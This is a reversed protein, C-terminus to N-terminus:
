FRVRAGGLIQTARESTADADTRRGTLYLDLGAADVAQVVGLGYLYPSSILASGVKSEYRGLEGFLTTKGFEFVRREIGAQGHWATLVGDLADKQQAAGVNAFLGSIKHLVAVSGIVTRQLTDDDRYGLGAAFQFEGADHSFRAGLDWVNDNAWSASATFGAILPSDYRVLERRQGDYSLTAISSTSGTYALSKGNLTRSAVGVNSLSIEGIGKTVTDAKGLTLRGADGEVYLNAYRISIEDKAPDLGFELRYGAAVGAAPKGAGRFGLVTADVPSAAIHLKKSGALDPADWYLLSYNVQGYAQLSVKRTGKTAATAELEAIREELDACCKGGLDAARVQAISGMVALALAAGVVFRLNM